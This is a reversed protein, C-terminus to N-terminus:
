KGIEKVSYLRTVEHCIPTKTGKITFAATGVQIDQLVIYKIRDTDKQHALYPSYVDYIKDTETKTLKTERRVKM